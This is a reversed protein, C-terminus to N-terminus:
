VSRRIGFDSRYCCATSGFCIKQRQNVRKSMEQWKSGINARKVDNQASIHSRLFFARAAPIFGFSTLLCYIIIIFSKNLEYQLKCKM